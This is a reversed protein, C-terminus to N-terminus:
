CLSQTQFFFSILAVVHLYVDRSTEVQFCGSIKMQHNGSELGLRPRLLNERIAAGQDKHQFPHQPLLRWPSTHEKVVVEGRTTKVTIGGQPDYDVVLTLRHRLINLVPAVSESIAPLIEDAILQDELEELIAKQNEKLDGQFKDIFDYYDQIKSM